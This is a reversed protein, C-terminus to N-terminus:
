RRAIMQVNVQNAAVRAAPLREFGNITVEDGEDRFSLEAGSDTVFAGPGVARLRAALPKQVSGEDRQLDRYSGKLQVYYHNGRQTFQAVQGNSLKYANAFDNFEGAGLTYSQRPATVAVSAQDAQAQTQAQASFPALISLVVAAAGIFSKNM